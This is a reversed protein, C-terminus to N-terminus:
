TLWRPRTAARRHRAALRRDVDGPEAVLDPTQMLMGGSVQRWEATSGRGQGGAPAPLAAGQPEEARVPDRVAAPEFDPAIIVETFIEAVQGALEATVTGNAAIVGGFASVPDCDNAKRHAEALDAGLAIGCPNAHKMIAVCPEAFDFAARRAADADVYNNYSM